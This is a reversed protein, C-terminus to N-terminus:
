LQAIEHQTAYHTFGWSKHSIPGTEHAIDDVLSSGDPSRPWRDHTGGYSKWPAVRCLNWNLSMQLFHNCLVVVSLGTYRQFVSVANMNMMLAPFTSLDQNWVATFMAAIYVISSQPTRNESVNM